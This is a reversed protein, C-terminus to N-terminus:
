SFIDLITPIVPGIIVAILAPFIFIVLPIIMKAPMTNAIEKARFHRLIRMQDAQSHLVDSFSMGISEAQIIIAIFSSIEDVDIRQSLNRLAESRSVGMDMEQLVHRFEQSLQTPWLESIKKLAQDFGLGATACVSLMDLADPLNRRFEDKREREKANLWIKPLLLAALVISIGLLILLLDFTKSRYNIFFGFAVAVLLLIVRIGYFEQAHMGYPNGALNLTRDLEAISNAPTFKGFYDVIKQFFPKFTRSFFSGSIERPFIRYIFNSTQTRDRNDLVSQLRQNVTDQNRSFKLYGFIVLGIGALLIIATIVTFQILNGTIFEAM